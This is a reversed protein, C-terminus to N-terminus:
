ELLDGRIERLLQVGIDQVGRSALLEQRAKDARARVRDAVEPALPIGNALSDAVAQMDALVTAPIGASETETAISAM